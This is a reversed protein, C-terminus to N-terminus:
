KGPKPMFKKVRDAIIDATYPKVVYDNAGSQVAEVVTESDTLSTLMVIPIDGIVRDERIRKLAELGNMRPMMVDLLIMGPPDKKALEVAEYGNTAEVPICGLKKIVFSLARRSAISDEAILVKKSSRKAKPPAKILSAGCETCFKGTQGETGCEPCKERFTEEKEEPEGVPKVELDLSFANGIEQAQDPIKEVMQDITRPGLGFFEMGQKDLKERLVDEKEPKAFLFDTVLNSFNIVQIVARTGDPIPDGFESFHHHRVIEVLLRPLQWKLCLISGVLAHDGGWTDREAQALHVDQSQAIGFATGYELPRHRVLFLIGMDQLLGVSFVDAPMEAPIRAAVIGAAVGAYIGREWFQTYDFGHQQGSPFLEPISVGVALNCVKKYGLLSVAEDIEGISGALGYFPANVVKLIRDLLSPVSQIQAGIEKVPASLDSTMRAIDTAVKSLM